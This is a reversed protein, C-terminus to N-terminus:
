LRKKAFARGSSTKLYDEFVAARDPDDFAVYTKLEWPIFKATHAVKGENHMRMRERLDDTM